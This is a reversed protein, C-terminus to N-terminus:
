PRPLPGRAGPGEKGPMYIHSLEFDDPGCEAKPGRHRVDVAASVLFYCPWVLLLPSPPPNPMRGSFVMHLRAMEGVRAGQTGRSIYLKVIEWTSRTRSTQFLQLACSHGVSFLQLRVDITHNEGGSM